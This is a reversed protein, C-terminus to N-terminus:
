LLGHRKAIREKLEESLRKADRASLKSKLAIRKLKEFAVELEVKM